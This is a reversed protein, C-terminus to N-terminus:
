SPMWGFPKPQYDGVYPKTDEPMGDEVWRDHDFDPHDRDGGFDFDQPLSEIFMGNPESLRMQTVLEREEDTKANAEADGENGNRVMLRLQIARELEVEM